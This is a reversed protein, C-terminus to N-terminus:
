NIELTMPQQAQHPHDAGTYVYLKKGMQRGLRGKPLMRTVALEILREPHKEMVDAYTRVKQGGPYGSFSQLTKQELKRGTMVVNQANTVIVCDGSDVHPTYEPRHKGMLITAIETAIRGLIKGDADVHHWTKDLEGTKAFYTQRPM